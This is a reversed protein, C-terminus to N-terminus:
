GNTVETEPPNARDSALRVIADKAQAVANQEPAIKLIHTTLIGALDADVGDKAKLNEGLSKLFADPTEMPRAQREM